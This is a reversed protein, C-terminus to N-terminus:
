KNKGPDMAFLHTYANNETYSNM